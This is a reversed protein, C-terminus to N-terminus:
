GRSHSKARRAANLNKYKAAAQSRSMKKQPANKEDCVRILMLLRNLHWKQCPDFPIDYVTMFYYIEESTIVKGSNGRQNRSNITTATMPDEIYSVVQSVQEPTILNYLNPDVNQSITMFKIYDITEEVTKTEKLLFPKKWKAEWKSISVLSHELQLTHPRVTIVKLNEEDFLEGRQISLQLM